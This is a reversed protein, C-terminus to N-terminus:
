DRHISLDRNLVHSVNLCFGECLLVAGIFTSSSIEFRPLSLLPLPMCVAVAANSSFYGPPMLTVVAMPFTVTFPCLM